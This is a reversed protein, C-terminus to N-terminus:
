CRQGVFRDPHSDDPIPCLGSEAYVVVNKCKASMFKNGMLLMVEPLRLKHCSMTNNKSSRVVFGTQLVKYSPFFDEARLVPFTIFFFLQLTDNSSSVKKLTVEGYDLLLTPEQRYVTGNFAKHRIVLSLGNSSFFSIGVKRTRASEVLGSIENKYNSIVSDQWISGYTLLM